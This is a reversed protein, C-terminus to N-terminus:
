WRRPALGAQRMVSAVARASLTDVGDGAPLLIRGPKRPHTYAVDGRDGPLPEARWGDAELDARLREDRTM